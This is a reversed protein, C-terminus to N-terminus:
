AHLRDVPDVDFRLAAPEYNPDCILKEPNRHDASELTLSVCFPLEGAKRCGVEVATGTQDIRRACRGLEPFYGYGNLARLMSLPRRTFLTLSYELEISVPRDSYRKYLATPIEIAPGVLMPTTSSSPPLNLLPCTGSYIAREDAGILRVVC